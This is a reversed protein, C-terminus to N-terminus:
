AKREKGASKSVAKGKSTASGKSAAKTTQKRTPEAAALRDVKRNLEALQESVMEFRRHLALFDEKTPINMKQLTKVFMEQARATATQSQEIAAAMMALFQPNRATQEWQEATQKWFQENMERMAKMADAPANENADKKESM